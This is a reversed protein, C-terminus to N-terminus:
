SGYLSVFKISSVSLIFLDVTPFKAFVFLSYVAYFFSEHNVSWFNLIMEALNYVWEKLGGKIFYQLNEM